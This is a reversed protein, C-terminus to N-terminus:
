SDFTSVQGAVAIATRQSVISLAVEAVVLDGRDGRAAAHDAQIEVAREEGVPALGPEIVRERVDPVHGGDRPPISAAEPTVQVTAECGHLHWAADSSGVLEIRQVGPEGLGAPGVVIALAECPARPVADQTGGAQGSAM